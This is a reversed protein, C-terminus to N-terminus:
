DLIDKLGEGMIKYIDALMVDFAVEKDFFDKVKVNSTLAVYLSQLKEMKEQDTEKGQIMMNQIEIQKERFDKIMNRTADDKYIEDKLNLYTKVEESSKIAEVLERVKDYPNM